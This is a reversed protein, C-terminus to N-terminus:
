KSEYKRIAKLVPSSESLVAISFIENRTIVKSPNLRDDHSVLQTTNNDHFHYVHNLAIAEKDENTIQGYWTDGNILEVAYYKPPGFLKGIVGSHVILCLTIVLILLSSLAGIATKKSHASKLM